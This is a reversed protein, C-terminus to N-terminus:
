HQFIMSDMHIQGRESDGWVLLFSIQCENETSQDTMTKIPQTRKMSDAFNQAIIHIIQKTGCGGIEMDLGFVSFPTKSRLNKFESGIPWVSSHHTTTVSFVTPFYPTSENTKSTMVVGNVEVTM